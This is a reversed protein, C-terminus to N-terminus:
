YEGSGPYRHRKASVQVRMEGHHDAPHAPIVPRQERKGEAHIWVKATSTVKRGCVPCTTLSSEM